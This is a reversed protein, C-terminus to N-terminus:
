LGLEDRRRRRRREALMAVIAPAMAIFFMLFPMPRLSLGNGIMASVFLPAFLCIGTRGLGWAMTVLAGWYALSGLIGGEILMTLYTNHSTTEKWRWTTSPMDDSGIGTGLWLEAADRGAIMRGREIWTGLRGSGLDAVTVDPDHRIEAKRQENEYAITGVALLALLAVVAKVPRSICRSALGYAGFYALTAVHVQTSFLGVINILALGSFVALVRWGIVGALWSQHLVILLALTMYASSHPNDAGGHYPAFRGDGFLAAWWGPVPDIAGAEDSHLYLPETASWLTIWVLSACALWAILRLPFRDFHGFVLIAFYLAGLYRLMEPFDIRQQLVLHAALWVFPLVTVLLFVRLRWWNPRTLISVGALVTQTSFLLGALPTLWGEPLANFLVGYAFDLVILPPLVFGFLDVAVGGRGAAPEGYPRVAM